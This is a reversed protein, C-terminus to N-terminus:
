SKTKSISPRIKELLFFLTYNFSLIHLILKLFAYVYGLYVDNNRINDSTGNLPIFHEKLLFPDNRKYISRKVYNSTIVCDRQYLFLM